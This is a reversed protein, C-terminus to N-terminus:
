GFWGTQRTILEMSWVAKTFPMGARQNVAETDLGHSFYTVDHANM